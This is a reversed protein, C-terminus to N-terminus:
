QAKEKERQDRLGRVIERTLDRTFMMSRRFFFAKLIEPLMLVTIMGLVAFFTLISLLVDSEEQALLSLMQTPGSVLFAVAVIAVLSGFWYRM